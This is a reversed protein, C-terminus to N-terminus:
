LGGGSREKSWRLEPVAWKRIIYVVLIQVYDKALFDVQSRKHRIQEVRLEDEGEKPRGREPTGDSNRSKLWRVRKVEMPGGRVEM